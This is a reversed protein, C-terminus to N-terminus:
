ETVTILNAQTLMNSGAPGTVSLTVTFSGLNTYTHAPNVVTSTGGDGFTWFRNTVSGTSEDTFSVTLPALGNTPSALFAAVPPQVVINTVTIFHAASLTNSGGPGFVTLSVAFSAANTYTHVPSGASSTGGDGFMWVQSTVTGSSKGTFDVILPAVGNTPNASFAAVPPAPNTLGQAPSGISVGGDIRGDVCNSRDKEMFCSEDSNEQTPTFGSLALVGRTLFM